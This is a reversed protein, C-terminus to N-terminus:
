SLTVFWLNDRCDTGLGSTKDIGRHSIHAIVLYVCEAAKVLVGIFTLSSSMVINLESALLESM